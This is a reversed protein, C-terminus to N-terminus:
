CSEITEGWTEIGGTISQSKSFGLSRLYMAFTGSRNGSNCYIYIPANRYPELEQLRVSVHQLPFLIANELHGEEYEQAIRCDLLIADDTLSTRFADISIELLVKHPAIHCM